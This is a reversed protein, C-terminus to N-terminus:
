FILQKRTKLRILDKIQEEVIYPPAIVEGHVKYNYSFVERFNNPLDDYHYTVVVDLITGDDDYIEDTFVTRM